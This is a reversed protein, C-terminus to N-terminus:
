ITQTTKRNKLEEIVVAKEKELDKEPFVANLVLDSLVDIALPAHEDLVRAYYCTHEKGTFANMYGGVSEVSQAIEKVSRNKTGKFVMHEIFHSIGNKTASEDRSGVNIWVGVSVSRVHTLEESVVRFGNSLVTKRYTSDIQKLAAPLLFSKHDASKLNM